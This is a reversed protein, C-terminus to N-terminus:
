KFWVGSQKLHNVFSGIVHASIDKGSRENEDCARKYLTKVWEQTEALSSFTKLVRVLMGRNGETVNIENKRLSAIFTGVEGKPLADRLFGAEKELEPIEASPLSSPTPQVLEKPEEIVSNAATAKAVTQTHSHPNIATEQNSSPEQEPM